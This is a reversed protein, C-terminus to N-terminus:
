IEPHDEADENLLYHQDIVWTGNLLLLHYRRIRTWSGKPEYRTWVRANGEDVLKIETIQEFEPHHSVPTGFDFGKRRRTSHTCHRKLIRNYEEELAELEDSDDMEHMRETIEKM